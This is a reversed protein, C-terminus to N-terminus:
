QQLIAVIEGMYMRHYDQHPYFTQLTPDLFRAPDLDQTYIKRCVISMRAERFITSGPEPGEMATLGAAASKSPTDRGSRTGCFNLAGRHDENLFCLTHFRSREMYDFTCRTPRVVCWCVDKGWMHGVGGWSATMTNHDSPSGATVLMWDDALLSFPNEVLQRPQLRTM